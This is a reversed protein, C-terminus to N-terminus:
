LLLRCVLEVRSQLESTHEESRLIGYSANEGFPWWETGTTFETLSVRNFFTITEVLLTLVIGITTLISIIACLLFFAPAAKELFRLLSQNSKKQKMMDKVNVAMM